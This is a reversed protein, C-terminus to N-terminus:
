NKEIKLSALVAESINAGKARSIPNSEDFQYRSTKTIIDIRNFYRRFEIIKEGRYSGRFHGADALGDITQAFHLFPTNLQSEDLIMLTEGTKKDQYLDFLGITPTKNAIMQEITQEKKKDKTKKADDALVYQSTSLVLTLALALTTLKM